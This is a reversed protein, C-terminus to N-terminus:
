PHSARRGPRPHTGTPAAAAPDIGCRSNTHISACHPRSFNHAGSSSWCCLIEERSLGCVRSAGAGIPLKRAVAELAWLEAKSPESKEEM